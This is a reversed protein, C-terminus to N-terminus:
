HRRLYCPVIKEVIEKQKSFGTNNLKDINPHIGILYPTDEDEEYVTYREWDLNVVEFAWQLIQMVSVAVGSSIIYNGSLNQFSIKLMEDVVDEAASLDFKKGVNKIVLKAKNKNIIVGRIYDSIKPILYLDKKHISDHNFLISVASNYKFTGIYIELLDTIKSKALGYNCTFEKLSSSYIKTNKIEPKFMLSSAAYNFHCNPSVNILASILRSSREYNESYINKKNENLMSISNNQTAALNIYYDPKIERLIIKIDEIKNGDWSHNYVKSNNSIKINSIAHIELNTQDYLKELIIKGDQGKAGDLIIKKKNKIEKM